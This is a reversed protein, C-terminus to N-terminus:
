LIGREDLIPSVATRCECAVEDTLERAGRTLNCLKHAPMLNDFALAGGNSNPVVHDVEFYLPDFKDELDPPIARGCLHCRGDTKDFIDWRCVEEVENGAAKARAEANRYWTLPDSRKRLKEQERNRWYYAKSSKRSMAAYGEPDKERRALYHIRKILCRRCPYPLDGSHKCPRESAPTLFRAIKALHAPDIM